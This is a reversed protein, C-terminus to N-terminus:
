INFHKRALDIRRDIEKSCDERSLLNLDWMHIKFINKYGDNWYRQRRTFTNEVPFIDLKDSIGAEALRDRVEKVISKNIEKKNMLAKKRRPVM